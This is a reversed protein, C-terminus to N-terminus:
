LTMTISQNISQLVTIGTDGVDVRGILSMRDDPLYKRYTSETFRFHTPQYETVDDVSQQDLQDARSMLEPLDAALEAAAQTQRSQQCVNSDPKFM